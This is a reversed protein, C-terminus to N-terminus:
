PSKRKFVLVILMKLVKSKQGLLFNILKNKKVGFGDMFITEIVESLVRKKKKKKVTKVIFITSPRGRDVREAVQLSFVGQSSHMYM